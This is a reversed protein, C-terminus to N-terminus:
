VEFGRKCNKNTKLIKTFIQHYGQYGFSAAVFKFAGLLTIPELSM